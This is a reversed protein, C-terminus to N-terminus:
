PRQRSRKASASLREIRQPAELKAIASKVGDLSAEIQTALARLDTGGTGTYFPRNAEPVSSLADRLYRVLVDAVTGDVHNFALNLALSGGAGAKAKHWVGPPLCLLDGPKLTVRRLTHRGVARLTGAMDARNSNQTPFEVEPATSYWWTKAGDLQLSTAVRADYHFDFGTGPPSLYARVDIRGAYGLDDEIRRAARRLAPHALEMGTVCITAGAEYMERIDVPGITAQRLEGFVCRIEAVRDLGHIFRAPKLLADFKGPSGRVYLPRRGFYRNLFVDVPVPDLLASLVSAKRKKSTM